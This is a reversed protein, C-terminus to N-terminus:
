FLDDGADNIDQCSWNSDIPVMVFYSAEAEPDRRREVPTMLINSSAALVIQEDEAQWFGEVRGNDRERGRLNIVSRQVVYVSGSVAGGVNVTVGPNGDQDSDVEGAAGAETPLSDSLPNALDAGVVSAFPGAQFEGNETWQAQREFVPFHTVFSEPYSTSARIGFRYRAESTAIRCLTEDWTIQDDLRLADMLMYQTTVVRVEENGLPSPNRQQVASVAKMAFREPQAVPEEAADPRMAGGADGAQEPGADSTQDPGSDSSQVPGADLLDSLDPARRDDTTDQPACGVTLICGLAFAYYKSM